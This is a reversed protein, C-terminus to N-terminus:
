FDTRFPRFWIDGISLEIIMRGFNEKLLGNNSTGRTGFVLSFDIQATRSVPFQFGASLGYENISHTNVKYYLQEHYAGFKYSARDSLSAFQNPNGLKVTGFSIKRTNNFDDNQATKNISLDSFNGVVYDTSLLFGGVIFSVGVGWFSPMSANFNNLVATDTLVGLTPIYMYENRSEVKSKNQHQYFAGIYFNDIPNIMTGINFNVGLFIDSNNVQYNLTHANHYSVLTSHDIKGILAAVSGGLYFGDFIKSSLGITLNSLGGSGRFIKDGQLNVGSKNVSAPSSMYYNVSSFPQFLLVASIEKVTDFNFLSYFGNLSGNNQLFNTGGDMVTSNQNFRYGTQVRTTRVLSWMAPNLMNITNNSPVSIQTGGMAQSSATQGYIIDGIGFTSYNSGGQSFLELSTAILLAFTFFLSFFIKHNKFMNIKTKIMKKNLKTQLIINKQINASLLFFFYYELIFYYFKFIM